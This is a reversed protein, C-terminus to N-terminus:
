LHGYASQTVAICGITGAVPPWHLECACNAIAFLRRATSGALGPDHQAM